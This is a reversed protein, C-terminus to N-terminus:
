GRTWHYIWPVPTNKLPVNAPQSQLRHQVPSQPNQNRVSEWCKGAMNGVACFICVECPEQAPLSRLMQLFEEVEHKDELLAITKALLVHSLSTGAACSGFAHLLQVFVLSHKPLKVSVHGSSLLPLKSFM